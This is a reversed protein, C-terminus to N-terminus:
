SKSPFHRKDCGQAFHVGGGFRRFTRKLIVRVNTADRRIIIYKLGYFAGTENLSINQCVAEDARRLKSFSCTFM